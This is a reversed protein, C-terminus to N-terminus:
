RQQSGSGPLVDHFQNLLVAKWAATLAAAPYEAQLCVLSPVPLGRPQRAKRDDVMTRVAVGEALRLLAECQRNERKLACQTTYTGRHIEL